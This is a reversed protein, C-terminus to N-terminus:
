EKKKIIIIGYRIITTLSFNHESTYLSHKTLDLANGNEESFLKEHVNMGLSAKSRNETM